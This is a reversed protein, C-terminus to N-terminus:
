EPIKTVILDMVSVDATQQTPCPLLAWIKRDTDNILEFIILDTPPLAMWLGRVVSLAALGGAACRCATGNLYSVCVGSASVSM